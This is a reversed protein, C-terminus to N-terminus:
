DLHCAGNKVMSPKLGVARLAGILDTVRGVTAGLGDPLKMDILKELKERLEELSEVGLALAIRGESGFANILVPIEFGDVNEFLIAKNNDPDGKSIRDTIETIELDRNVPVSVRILEDHQELKSIFHSLDEFPM